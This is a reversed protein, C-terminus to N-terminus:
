CRVLGPALLWCNLVCGLLLSHIRRHFTRYGHAMRGQLAPLADSLRQPLTATSM